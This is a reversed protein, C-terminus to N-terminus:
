SGPLLVVQEEDGARVTQFFDRVPNYMDAPVLLMSHALERKLRLGGAANETFITYTAVKVDRARGKPLSSVKWGAPLDISIDDTHRFPFRFYIPHVRGAHEFLHKEGGSFLGVPLLVRKGLSSAWGKVTVTYEAV